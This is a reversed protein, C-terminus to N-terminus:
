SVLEALVVSIVDAVTTPLTDTAIRLGVDTVAEPIVTAEGQPVVETMMRPVMETVTRPVVKAVTPTTTMVPAHRQSFPPIVTTSTTLHASTSLQPPTFFTSGSGAAEGGVETSTSEEEEVSETGDSESTDERGSDTDGSADLGRFVRKQSDITGGTDLHRWNFIPPEEAALKGMPPAEFDDLPIQSAAAELFLGIAHHPMFLTHHQFTMFDEMRDALVSAWDYVMGQMIGNMFVVQPLAIDSARTAGTLRSKIVDMICRWHGEQIFDRRLGRCKSGKLMSDKEEPTLDRSVLRIWHEKWEQSLKHNKIEVKKGDPGPIGFVRTFDRPKFSVTMQHKKYMFTSTRSEQSYAKIM